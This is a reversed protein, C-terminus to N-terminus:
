DPPWIIRELEGDSFEEIRAALELAEDSAEVIAAQWRASSEAEVREMGALRFRSAPDFAARARLREIEQEETRGRERLRRDLWCGMAATREDRFREGFHVCAMVRGVERERETWGRCLYNMPGGCFGCTGAIYDDPSVDTPTPECISCQPCPQNVGAAREANAVRNSLASM